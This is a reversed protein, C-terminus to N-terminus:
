EESHRRVGDRPIDRWRGSLLDADARLIVGGM